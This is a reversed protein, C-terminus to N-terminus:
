AGGVYGLWVHLAISVMDFGARSPLWDAAHMRYSGAVGMPAPTVKMAVSTRESARHFAALARRMDSGHTVLVVHSIRQQKLLPLTLMANERPLRPVNTPATGAVVTCMFWAGLVGILLLTWAILQKM